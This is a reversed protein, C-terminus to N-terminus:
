LHKLPYSLFSVCVKYLYYISEDKLLNVLPYNCFLLSLLLIVLVNNKEDIRPMDMEIIRLENTLDQRCVLVLESPPYSQMLMSELCVNLNEPLESKCLEILVSYPELTYKGVKYEKKAM